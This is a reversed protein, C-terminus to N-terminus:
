VMGIYLSWFTELDEWLSIHSVDLIIVSLGEVCLPGKQWGPRELIM